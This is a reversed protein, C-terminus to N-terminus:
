KNSTIKTEKKKTLTLLVVATFLLGLTWIGNSGGGTVSVSGCGGGGYQKDADKVTFTIEDYVSSNFNATAKLVVKGAGTIRLQRNVVEAPGSVVTFTVELYKQLYTNAEVTASLDIPQTDTTIEAPFNDKNITVKTINLINVVVTKEVYVGPDYTAAFRLVFTGPSNVVLRKQADISGDGSILTLTYSNFMPLNPSASVECPVSVPLGTYYIDILASEDIDIAEITYNGETYIYNGKITLDMVSAYLGTGNEVNTYFAIYGNFDFGEYKAYLVNIDTSYGEASQARYLELTGDTKGVLRITMPRESIYGISDDTGYEYANRAPEVYNVPSKVGGQYVSVAMSTLQLAGVGATNFSDTKNKMGFLMGWKSSTDRTSNRTTFTIDFVVGTNRNNYFPIKYVAKPNNGSWNSTNNLTMGGGGELTANQDAPNKIFEWDDPNVRTTFADYKTYVYNEGEVVNFECDKYNGPFAASEIRLTAAGAALGKLVNGNVSAYAGGSIISYNCAQNAGSVPNTYSVANLAYEEGVLMYQLATSYFNIGGFAPTVVSMEVEDYILSDTVSTAKLTFTGLANVTLTSGSLSVCSNTVNSVSWTVNKYQPENPSVLVSAALNVNSSAGGYAMISSNAIRVDKVKPMAATETNMAYSPYTINLEYPVDQDGDWILGIGIHKGVFNVGEMELYMVGNPHTGTATSIIELTVKGGKFGKVTINLPVGDSVYVDFNQQSGVMVSEKYARVFGSYFSFYPNRTADAPKEYVSKFTDDIGFVIGWQIRNLYYNGSGRPHAMVATFSLSFAEEGTALGDDSVAHKTMFVPANVCYGYSSPDNFGYGSGPYSIKNDLFYKTDNGLVFWNQKFTDISFPVDFAAGGNNSIKVNGFKVNMEDTYVGGTGFPDGSGIVDHRWSNTLMFYGNTRSFDSNGALEWTVKKTTASGVSGPDCYIDMNGEENVVFKYYNGEPWTTWHNNPVSCIANVYGGDAIGASHLIFRASNIDDVNGVNHQAHPNKQGFALYFQHWGVMGGNLKFEFSWEGILKQRSVLTTEGNQGVDGFNFAGNGIPVTNPLDNNIIEFGDMGQEVQQATAKAPILSLASVMVAFVLTLMLFLKGYNAFRKAKM